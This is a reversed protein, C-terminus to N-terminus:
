KVGYLVYTGASWTGTDLILDIRDIASTTAVHGYNWLAEQNGNARVYDSELTFHKNATTNAYDFVNIIMGRNANGTQLSNYNCISSTGNIVATTTATANQNILNFYSYSSSSLNNLRMNLYGTSGNQWNRLVLQLNKYGSSISTLSLSSGSLSGSALETWGGGSAATAWKVGATSASDATLVQGDTGVAVRAVTDAATAAILDGKADVISKAIAGNALDYASKVSNPTAATTTSTSSTSDTLQVAGKQATTGDQIGITVSGSAGGGTIPATVAVNTIDGQDNAIWTFDMDTNSTKSLIQGTTGGKLDVLSADIANGLTRMALAGDKVLDTDDPTEWGFNTTTAM